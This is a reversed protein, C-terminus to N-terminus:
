ILLDLVIAQNEIEMWLLADMFFYQLRYIVQFMFM